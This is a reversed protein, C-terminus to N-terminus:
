YLHGVNVWFIFFKASINSTVSQLQVLKSVIKLMYVTPNNHKLCCVNAKHASHYLLFTVYSLVSFGCIYM